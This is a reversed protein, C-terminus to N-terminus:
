KGLAGGGLISARRMPIHARGTGQRPSPVLFRNQSAPSTVVAMRDARSPRIGGGVTENVVSVPGSSLAVSITTPEKMTLAKARPQDSGVLAVADPSPRRRRRWRRRRRRRRWRKVVGAAVSPGPIKVANEFSGGDDVSATTSPVRM